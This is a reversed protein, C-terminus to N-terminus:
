AHQRAACVVLYFFNWSIECYELLEGLLAKVCRNLCRIMTNSLLSKRDDFFHYYIQGEGFITFVVMGRFKTSLKVVLHDLLLRVSRASDEHDDGGAEGYEPDGAAEPVFVEGAKRLLAM